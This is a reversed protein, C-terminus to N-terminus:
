EDFNIREQEVVLPENKQRKNINLIYEGMIGLFILQVAGLFFVGIVLPAIGIPFNAWDLLKRVLYYISILLSGVGMTMGALVAYRPAVDSVAIFRMIAVDILFMAKHNSKGSRRPQEQYSIKELPAAFKSVMSHLNFIPDHCAKCIDIFTRDYAGSGTFGSLSDSNSLSKSMAYYLKRIIRIKDKKNPTKILAVAKAGKEWEEIMQPVLEVPVQFDAPILIICDGKAQILVYGGSSKPFNKANLIAKIRKDNACM